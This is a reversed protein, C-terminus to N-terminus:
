GSGPVVLCACVSGGCSGSLQCGSGGGSGRGPGFQRCKGSGTAIPCGIVIVSGPVGQCGKVNGSLDQCCFGVGGAMACASVLGGAGQDGSPNTRNTYALGTWDM